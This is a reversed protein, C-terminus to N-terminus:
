MHKGKVLFNILSFNLLFIEIYDILYPTLLLLLLTLFPLLLKLFQHSKLYLVYRENNLGGLLCWSLCWFVFFM